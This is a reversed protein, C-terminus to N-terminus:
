RSWYKHIEIIVTVILSFILAWNILALKTPRFKKPILFSFILGIPFYAISIGMGGAIRYVVNLSVGSAYFCANTLVLLIFLGAFTRKKIM